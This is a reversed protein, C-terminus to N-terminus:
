RGTPYACRAPGVAAKGTSGRSGMVGAGVFNIGEGRWKLRGIAGGDGPGMRDRLDSSGERAGIVWRGFAVRRWDRWRRGRWRDACGRLCPGYSGSLMWTRSNWGGKVERRM